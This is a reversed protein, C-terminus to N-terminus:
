ASSGYRRRRGAARLELIALTGASALALWPLYDILSYVNGALRGSVSLYVPYFCWVFAPGVLMMIIGPLVRASMAWGFGPFGFLACTFEVLVRLPPNFRALDPTVPGEYRKVRERWTLTRWQGGETRIRADRASLMAKVTMVFGVVFFLAVFAVLGWVTFSITFPM